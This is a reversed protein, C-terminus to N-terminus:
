FPEEQGAAEDLQQQAKKLTDILASAERKNRPTPGTYKLAQLMRLQAQTPGDNSQPVASGVTTRRPESPSTPAEADERRADVENQSAIAKDIGFGLYGLARGLASTYGVMLESNRTYPTLGPLPEWASGTVPRTDDPTTYVAVSCVLFTASNNFEVIQHGAEVVRLDPYKALALRLRTPVDVYGDLYKNTM